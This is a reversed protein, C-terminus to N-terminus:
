HRYTYRRVTHMQAGSCRNTTGNRSMRLGHAVTDCFHDVRAVPRYVPVQLRLALSSAACSTDRARWENARVQVQIIRESKPVTATSYVARCKLKVSGDWTYVRPPRPPFVALNPRLHPPSRSLRSTVPAVTAFHARATHMSWVQSAPGATEARSM